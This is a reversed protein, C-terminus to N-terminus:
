SQAPVFLCLPLAYPASNEAELIAFCIHIQNDASPRADLRRPIPIRHHGVIVVKQGQENTAIADAPMCDDNSCCEKPYWGHAHAPLELGAILPMALLLAPSSM